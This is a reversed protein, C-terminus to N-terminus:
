CKKQLIVVKPSLNRNIWDHKTICFLRPDLEKLFSDVAISERMGEEHGPYLTISIMGGDVLLDIAATLSKITTETLTTVSKDAGPLYGLNYVVLKISSTTIYTPFIEHSSHILEISSLFSPLELGITKHTNEIAQKQIDFGILKGGGKSMLTKALFLTDKGNGVTADIVLDDKCLFDSWLMHSFDIPTSFVPFQSRM